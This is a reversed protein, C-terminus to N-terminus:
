CNTYPAMADTGVVPCEMRPEASDIPSGDMFTRSTPRPWMLNFDLNMDLVVDVASRGLRDLSLRRVDCQVSSSCRMVLCIGARKKTLPQNPCQQM